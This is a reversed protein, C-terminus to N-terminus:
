ELDLDDKLKKIKEDRRNNEQKIKQAKQEKIEDEKQAKLDSEKQKEITSNIHQMKYNNSNTEVYTFGTSRYEHVYERTLKIICSNKEWYCGDTKRSFDSGANFNKDIEQYDKGIKCVYLEVIDKWPFKASVEKILVEKHSISFNYLTGKYFQFEADCSFGKIPAKASITEETTTKIEKYRTDNKIKDLVVSYAMGLKIGRFDMDELKCPLNGTNENQKIEAVVPSDVVCISTIFVLMAMFLSKHM